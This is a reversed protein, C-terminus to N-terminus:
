KKYLLVQYTHATCKSNQGNQLQRLLNASLDAFYFTAPLDYTIIYFFVKTPLHEKTNNRYNNKFITKFNDIHYLLSNPNLIIKYM